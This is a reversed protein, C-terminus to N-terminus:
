GTREKAQLVAVVWGRCLALGAANKSEKSGAPAQQWCCESQRGEGRKGVHGQWVPLKTAQGRRIEMGLCKSGFSTITATDLPFIHMHSKHPYRAIPTLIKSWIQAQSTLKRQSPLLILSPLFPGPTSPKISLFLDFPVSNLHYIASPPGPLFPDQTRRAHGSTLAGPSLVLLAVM